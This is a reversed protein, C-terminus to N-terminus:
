SPRDEVFYSEIMKFALHSGFLRLLWRTKIVMTDKITDDSHVIAMRSFDSFSHTRATVFWGSNERVSVMLFFWLYPKDFLSPFKLM